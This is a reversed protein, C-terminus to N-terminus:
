KPILKHLKNARLFDHLKVNHRLVRYPEWTNKARPHSWRVEFKLLKRSKKPDGEMALIEAVEHIDDDKNAIDVPNTYDPDYYFPKLFSIHRTLLEDTVLDQITYISQDNHSVVRYPGRRFSHLKSPPRNEPYNLLVYSNVPFTTLEDLKPADVLHDKDKDSLYKQALGIITHQADLLDSLYGSMPKGNNKSSLLYPSFMGRDLHVANGFIIQAPSVGLSDIIHANFIRQVMPLFRSWRGKVLDDFVLNRLHRVVEKNGREVITNEEHSYAITLQQGIDVLSLLAEIVENVFEGGNDSFLNYPAGFIGMCHILCEAISEAKKDTVAYLMIFRSFCDIIVVIYTNGYVDVPLPGILDINWREWPLYTSATFKRALIPARIYSFKQCCPCLFRCFKQVHERMGRWSHGQAVLRAITREVGFHGVISNHVDSILKFYQTPIKIDAKDLINTINTLKRKKVILAALTESSHRTEPNETDRSLGDAVINLKGPLHEVDFSFEQLALKWRMVKGQSFRDIHTLNEHDTRLLFHIDRLLYQLKNLSFFIAYGEKDPTAWRKEADTFTHSLFAVPYTVDGDVQYLYAGLAYDSADTELIVKLDPKLFFLTPLKNFEEQVQRFTAILEDTWKLKYTPHFDKISTNLPHLLNAADHLHTRFYNVLGLFRKM